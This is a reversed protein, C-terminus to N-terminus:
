HRFDHTEGDAAIITLDVNRYYLNNGVTECQEEIVIGGLSEQESIYADAFVIAEWGDQVDGTREFRYDEDQFGQSCGLVRPAANSARGFGFSCMLVFNSLNLALDLVEMVSAMEQQEFSMSFTEDM